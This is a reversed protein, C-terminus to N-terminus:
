TKVGIKQAKSGKKTHERVICTLCIQLLASPARRDRITSGAGDGAQPLGPRRCTLFEWLKSLGTLRPLCRGIGSKSAGGFYFRNVNLDLTVNRYSFIDEGYYCYLAPQICWKGNLRLM